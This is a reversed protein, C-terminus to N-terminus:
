TAARLKDVREKTLSMINQELFKTIHTDNDVVTKLKKVLEDKKLKTIDTNELWFEILKLLSEQWECKVSMKNLIHEKRKAIWGKKNELWEDVLDHVNNYVKLKNDFGWVTINESLKEIMKLKELM